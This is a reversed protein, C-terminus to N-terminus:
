RGRLAWRLRRLMRWTRRDDALARLAAAAGAAVREAAVADAVAIRLEDVRRWDETVEDLRRDAVDLRHRLDTIVSDKDAIRERLGAIEVVLEGV